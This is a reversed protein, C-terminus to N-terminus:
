APAAFTPAGSPTFEATANVREEIQGGADYDTMAGQFTLTGETVEAGVLPWSIIIEEAAAKIKTTWDRDATHVLQVQFPKLRAICSFLHEAWGTAVNGGHVNEVARRSAGVGTVGTIEALFTTAGGLSITTGCLLFGTM